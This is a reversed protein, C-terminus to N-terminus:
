TLGVEMWKLSLEYTGLTQNGMTLLFSFYISGREESRERTYHLTTVEMETKGAPTHVISELKQGPIYTQRYSVPGQRVVTVRDPFAKVSTRTEDATGGNEKYRLIWEEGEKVELCGDLEQRIVEPEQGSEQEITSEIYIKVPILAGAGKGGLRDQFSM